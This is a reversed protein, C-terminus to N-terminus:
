EPVEILPREIGEGRSLAAMGRRLHAINSASYFPDMETTVEFPIRNERLVDRAFMNIAVTTNMGVQACFEDLQRKVDTDMRVSFTTQPM